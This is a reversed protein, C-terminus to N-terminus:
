FDAGGRSAAELTSLAYEANGSYGDFFHEADYVVEKGQEKLYRVTDEIMNLNEEPTTRPVDTVHLLWTKGFITVVPTSADLLLKVQADEEVPTNARRTFWLSCHPCPFTPTRGSERFRWTERIVALGGAKLTISALNILNKAVRMKAAATSVGEAQSGDRLPTDYILIKSSSM